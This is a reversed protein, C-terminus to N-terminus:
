EVNFMKAPLIHRAKASVVEMVVSSKEGSSLSTVIETKRLTGPLHWTRDGLEVANSDSSNAPNSFSRYQYIRSIRQNTPYDEEFIKPGLWYLLRHPDTKETENYRGIQAGNDLPKTAYYAEGLKASDVLGSLFGQDSGYAGHILLVNYSTASEMSKPITWGSTVFLFLIFLLKKMSSKM